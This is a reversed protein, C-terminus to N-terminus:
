EAASAELIWPLMDIQPHVNLQSYIGYFIVPSDFKDSHDISLRWWLYLGTSVQLGSFFWLTLTLWLPIILISLWCNVQLIVDDFTIVIFHFYASLLMETLIDCWCIVDTIVAALTGGKPVFYTFTWKYHGGCLPVLQWKDCPIMTFLVMFNNENWNTIM